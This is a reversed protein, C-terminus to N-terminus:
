KKTKRPRKYPKFEEWKIEDKSTELHKNSTIPTDQMQEEDSKKVIKVLTLMNKNKIWELPVNYQAVAKAFLSSVFPSIQNTNNSKLEIMWTLLDIMNSNEIVDDKYIMQGQESWLIIDLHQKMYNLISQGRSRMTVLLNQTFTTEFNM